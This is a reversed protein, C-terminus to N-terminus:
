EAAELIARALRRLSSHGVYFDLAVKNRKWIRISLDGDSDAEVVEIAIEPDAGDQRCMVITRSDPDM